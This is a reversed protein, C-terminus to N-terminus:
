AAQRLPGPAATAKMHLVRRGQDFLAPRHTVAILGQGTRELRAGLRAVVTAETAADLGETPEDLLLWPAPRLLARALSLRRKEGGSLREGGDGIWTELGGPMAHVRAELGADALALWLADDDAGPAGLTLAERVTGTPLCADQPAYAFAARADVAALRNIDIGGIALQGTPADRLKLLRELLTTKGCGSRGVVILRDGPALVLPAAGPTQIALGYSAPSLHPPATDGHAALLPDLRRAAEEIAGDQDFGRALVAAGEMSAAAALAALGALPLPAHRSLLLAAAAAVTAMLAAWAVQWAQAKAARLRADTLAASEVAIRDVAWDQLGHCVLEPAAASIAAYADKLRGAAQQLDRGNVAGRALAMRRAGLITAAFLAATTLGAAPSALGTLGAGFVLAAAAAWRNSRRVFLGEIADVDQVFRASAEGVSLELAAKAPARALAAFLAPRLSALAGLAAEHGKLREGYRAATRAIALLRIGAAPLMYNFALGAGAAGALAAGVIFWGSLALLATSSAAVIAAAAGAALLASRNKRVEGRILTRLDPTARM